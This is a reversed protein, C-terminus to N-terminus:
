LRVKFETESVKDARCLHLNPLAFKKKCTEIIKSIDPVFDSQGLM